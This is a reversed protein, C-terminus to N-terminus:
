VGPLDESIHLPREGDAAAQGVITLSSVSEYNSFNFTLAIDIEGRCVFPMKPAVAAIVYMACCNSIVGLQCAELVYTPTTAPLEIM